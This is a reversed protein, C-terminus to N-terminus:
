TLIVFKLSVQSNSETSCDYEVREIMQSKPKEGKLVTEVPIQQVNRDIEGDIISQPNLDKRQNTDSETNKSSSGSASEELDFRNNMDPEHDVEFYAEAQEQEQHDGDMNQFDVFMPADFSCDFDM